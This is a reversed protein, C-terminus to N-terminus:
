KFYDVSFHRANPSVVLIYKKGYTSVIIKGDDTFGVLSMSHGAMCDEVFTDGTEYDYLSFDAANIMVSYGENLHQKISDINISSDSLDNNSYSFNTGYKKNILEVTGYMQSYDYDTGALPMSIYDDKTYPYNETNYSLVLTLVLAEYNYRVTGNDCITYMDFGFTDEFDQEKGEYQQFISNSLTSYHCCKGGMNELILAKEEYTADPFYENLINNIDNRTLLDASKEEFYDQNGGYQELSNGVENYINTSEKTYSVCTLSGDDNIKFVNGKNDTIKKLSGFTFYYQYGNETEVTADFGNVSIKGNSKKIKIYDILYPAISPSFVLSALAVVFYDGFNLESQDVNDEEDLEIEEIDANQYKQNDLSSITDVTSIKNMSIAKDSFSGM